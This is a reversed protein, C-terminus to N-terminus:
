PGTRRASGAGPAAWGVRCLTVACGDPWRSRGAWPSVEWRPSLFGGRGCEAPRQRRRRTKVAARAPRRRSAGAASSRWPRRGAGCAPGGTGSGPEGIVAVAVDSHQARAAVGVRRGLDGEARARRARDRLDVVLGGLVVVQRDGPAAVPLPGTGVSGVDPGVGHGQRHGRATVLDETDLDLGTDAVPDVVRVAHGGTRLGLADVHHRRRVVRVLPAAEVVAAALVGVGVRAVGGHVGDVPFAQQNPPHM